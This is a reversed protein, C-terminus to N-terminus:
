RENSSPSGEQLAADIRDLARRWGQLTRGHAEGCSFDDSKAEFSTIKHTVIDHAITAFDADQLFQSIKGSKLSIPVDTVFRATRMEELIRAPTIPRAKKM